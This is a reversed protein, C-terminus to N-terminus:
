TASIWWFSSLAIDRGKHKPFKTDVKEGACGRIVVSISPNPEHLQPGRGSAVYVESAARKEIGSSNMFERIRDSPLAQDVAGEDARGSLDRVGAQRSQKVTKARMEASVGAGSVVLRRGQRPGGLGHVM